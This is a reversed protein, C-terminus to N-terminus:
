RPRRVRSAAIAANAFLQRRSIHPGYGHGNRAPSGQYPGTGGASRAPEHGLRAKLGAQQQLCKSRSRRSGEQESERSVGPFRWLSERQAGLREDTGQNLMGRYEGPRAAFVLPSGQHHREDQEQSHGNSREGNRRKESRSGFVFCVSAFEVLGM